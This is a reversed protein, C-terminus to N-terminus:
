YSVIRCELVFDIELCRFEVLRAEPVLHLVTHGVVELYAQRVESQEFIYIEGRADGVTHVPEKVLPFAEVVLLGALHLFLPGSLELM